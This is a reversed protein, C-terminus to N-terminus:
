LNFSVNEMCYTYSKRGIAACDASTCSFCPVPKAAAEGPEPIMPKRAM